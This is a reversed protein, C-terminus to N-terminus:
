ERASEREKERVSERGIECAKEKKRELVKGGAEERLIKKRSLRM